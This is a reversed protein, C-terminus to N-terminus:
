EQTGPSGEPSASAFLEGLLRNLGELFSDFVNVRGSLRTTEDSLRQLETQMGEVTNLAQTMDDQLTGVQEEVITMRGSLGELPKVRQDLLDLDSNLTALNGTLQDLNAELQQVASLRNFDLTGNIGALIALNILVAFIMALAGVGAMLWLMEARNFPKERLRPLRAAFTEKHPRKQEQAEKESILEKKEIEEPHARQERIAEDEGGGELPMAPTMEDVVLSEAVQEAEKAPPPHGQSEDLSFVLYPRIREINLKGLGPIRLMDEVDVFPRADLIRKALAPGIGPLQRLTQEDATNPNVQLLEDESM